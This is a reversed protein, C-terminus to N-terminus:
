TAKQDRPGRYIGCVAWRAPEARRLHRAVWDCVARAEQALGAPPNVVVLACGNMKMPDDLPRLRAEAVLATRAAGGELRRLFGDFTELDKLPLWIM